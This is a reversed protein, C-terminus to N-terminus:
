GFKELAARTAIGIDFCRGNSSLKGREHWALFRELQDRPDHGLKEILSEALCLALSTDDTWQGPELNHVGGGDMGTVTPFQLRTRFESTTGVADGCALGILAGCVRDARLTKDNM